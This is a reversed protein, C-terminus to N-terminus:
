SYAFTPHSICFAGRHVGCRAGPRCVIIVIAGIDDTEVARKESSVMSPRAAGRREIEERKRGGLEIAKGLKNRRREIRRADAYDDGKSKADVGTAALVDQRGAGGLPRFLRRM